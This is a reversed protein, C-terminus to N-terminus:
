IKEMSMKSNKESEHKIKKPKKTEIDDPKVNKINVKKNKM